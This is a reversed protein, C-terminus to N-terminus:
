DKKLLPHFARPPHPHISPHHLSPNPSPTLPRPFSFHVRKFPQKKHGFHFLYLPTGIAISSPIGECEMGTAADTAYPTTIALNYM